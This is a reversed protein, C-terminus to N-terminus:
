AAFPSRHWRPSPGHAAVDSRERVELGGGGLVLDAGRRQLEHALEASRRPGRARVLGRELTRDVLHRRGRPAQDLRILRRRRRLIADLLHLLRALARLLAEGSWREAGRPWRRSCTLTSDYLVLLQRERYLFAGLLYGLNRYNAAITGAGGRYLETYMLGGVIEAQREYRAQPGYARSLRLVVAHPIHELVGTESATQWAGSAVPAPAVFGRNFMRMDPPPAALPIRRLSDILSSHYAAASAV